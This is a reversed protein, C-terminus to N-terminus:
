RLDPADTEAFGITLAGNPAGKNKGETRIGPIATSLMHPIGHQSFAAEVDLHRCYVGWGTAGPHLFACACMCVCICPCPRLYM